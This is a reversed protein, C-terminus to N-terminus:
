EKEAQGLYDRLTLYDGREYEVRAQRIEAQVVPNQQLLEEEVQAIQEELLQLLQEKEDLSFSRVAELFSEFPITLKVSEKQAM